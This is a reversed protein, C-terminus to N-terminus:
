LLTKTSRCLYFFFFCFGVVVVICFKLLTWSLNHENQFVKTIYQKVFVSKLLLLLEFPCCCCRWYCFFFCCCCIFYDITLVKRVFHEVWKSPHHRHRDNHWRNAIETRYVKTPKTSTNSGFKMKLKIHILKPRSM